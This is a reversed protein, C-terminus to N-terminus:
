AASRELFERLRQRGRCACTHVAGVSVGLRRAVEAFSLGDMYVMRLVGSTREDLRALLATLPPICPDAEEQPPSDAPREFVKTEANTREGSRASARIMSLLTYFLARRAFPAIRCGAEFNERYTRPLTLLCTNVVDGAGDRFEPSAWGRILAEATDLLWPYAIAGVRGDCSATNFAELLARLDLELTTDTGQNDHKANM